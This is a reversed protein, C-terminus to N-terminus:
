INLKYEKYIRLTTKDSMEQKWIKKRRREAEGKYPTAVASGKNGFNETLCM